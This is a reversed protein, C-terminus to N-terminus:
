RNDCSGYLYDDPGLATDRSNSEFSGVLELIPDDSSFVQPQNIEALYLDIADRVLGAMTKDSARVMDKLRRHQDISLYIQTRVMDAAM